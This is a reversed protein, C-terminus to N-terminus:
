RSKRGAGSANTHSLIRHRENESVGGWIGYPEQFLLSHLLCQIRVPCQACFQKAKRERRQRSRGREGDGHFFMSPDAGRCRALLQWDWREANRVIPPTATGSKRRQRTGGKYM